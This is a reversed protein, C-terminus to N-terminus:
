DEREWKLITGKVSDVRFEYELGNVFYEGEYVPVGREYTFELERFTGGSLKNRVIDEARQVSLLTETRSTVTTRRKESETKLVAGTVADLEIEYEMDGKVLTVEYYIRGDDEEWKAEMHQSGPVQAKALEVARDLGIYRSTGGTSTPASTTGNKATSTTGTTGVTSGGGVKEEEWQIIEGTSADVTADYRYEGKKLDIEWVPRGNETDQKGKEISAGPLRQLVIEVARDYSILDQGASPTTQGSTRKEEEWQRFEGSRADLEFDYLYVETYAEGEYVARGDDLELELETIIAGPARSVVLEKAKEMGIYEGSATNVSSAHKEQALQNLEAVTKQALDEAKLSPDKEIISQILQAKGTSVGLKEALQQVTRDGTLNQTTLDVAVGQKQLTVQVIDGLQQQLAERHAANGNEVSLLVASSDEQLYGQQLLSGILANFAVKLDTGKLDMGDLVRVADANRATVALVRDQSNATIELSPNVDLGIVSDVRLYRSYGWGGVGIAVCAAAAIVAAWVKRSRRPSPMVAQVSSEASEPTDISVLQGALQADYAPTLRETAQRLHQEIERRKM